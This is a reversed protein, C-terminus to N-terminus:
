HGLYGSENAKGEEEVFDGGEGLGEEAPVAAGNGMPRLIQQGLVRLGRKRIAFVYILFFVVVVFVLTQNKKIWDM